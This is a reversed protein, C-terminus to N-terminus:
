QVEEDPAHIKDCPRSYIFLLHGPKKVHKVSRVTLSKAVVDRWQDEDFKFLIGSKTEKVIEADFSKPLKQTACRVCYKPFKPRKNNTM